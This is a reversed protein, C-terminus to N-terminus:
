PTGAGGPCISMIKQAHVIDKANPRIYKEYASSSWRGMEKLTAAPVKPAATTAAGIRFSHPTYVKPDLSCLQCLLRLKESFWARTMPKGDPTFFLPENPAASRRSLLYRSMSSFPCFDCNTASVIIPVGKSFKDTKSHKLVLTFHDHDLLLDSITLDSDPNFSRSKTTFEGARLFRYFATLFASELLTDTYPDFFGRAESPAISQAPSM